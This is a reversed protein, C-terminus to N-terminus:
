GHKSNLVYSKCLQWWCYYGNGTLEWAFCCGEEAWQFHKKPFPSTKGGPWISWTKPHRPRFDMSRLTLQPHAPPLMCPRLKVWRGVWGRQLPWRIQRSPDFSPHLWVHWIEASDTWPKPAGPYSFSGGGNVQYIARIVTYASVHSATIIIYFSRLSHEAIQQWIARKM